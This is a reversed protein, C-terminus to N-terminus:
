TNKDEEGPKSGEAIQGPKPGAAAANSCGGVHAPNQKIM